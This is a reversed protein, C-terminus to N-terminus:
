CNKQNYEDAMAKISVLPTTVVAPPLAPSPLSLLLLPSGEEKSAVLPPAFVLHATATAVKQNM